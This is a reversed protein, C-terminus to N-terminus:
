GSYGSTANSTLATTAQPSELLQELTTMPLPGARLVTDVWDRISQTSPKAAYLRRFRHYGRFYDTIQLPSHVVRQWLNEAFQPALLGEEVAFRMVEDEGWDATHVQVSVYARTANELRKRLHALRTLPANGAWGADLMLEEVFSGWGEVYAGNPFLSRIPSAASVAVKYQLYHGPFMEHSIIMTNFHTNFSRYFGERSSEPASDPISPVYFLTDAEPAFPGSPYVGGVAAGSFHAPSLDVYLTTPRPITALQQAEVFREAADTLDRFEGLFADANNQRDSEMAEIALALLDERGPYASASGEARRWRRAEDIMLRRVERIEASAARLLTDPDFTGLSRRRLKATYTQSGMSVPVSTAPLLTEDLFRELGAIAQGADEAAEFITNQDPWGTVIGPLQKAYFNRTGALTQRARQTRLENGDTLFREAQGCLRAVGRLREIVARSREKPSLQERVLLHTLAQSIQEAYWQPQADLYRDEQWDAQENGTQRILHDLDVALTDGILGQDNLAQAAEGTATNYALWQTVRQGDFDEFHMASRSDGYAFAQTPYFGRWRDIYDDILAQARSEADTASLAQANIQPATGALCAFTLASLGGLRALCRRRSQPESRCAAARAM